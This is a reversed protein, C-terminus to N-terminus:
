AQPPTAGYPIEEYGECYVHAVSQPDDDGITGFVLQDHTTCRFWPTGDTDHGDFVYACDGNM